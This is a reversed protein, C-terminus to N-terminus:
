KQHVRMSTTLVEPPLAMFEPDISGKLAVPWEVLGTVEELLEDDPKIQLGEKAAIQNIQAQILTKREERDVIVFAKKLKDKYDQVNKITLAEPAHFRHGYTINGFVVKDDGLNIEGPVIQGDFLCLISHLPRVWPRKNTAWLMSKAWPLQSIVEDIIPAILEITPKGKIDLKAFYFTGKDLDRQECQDVSSLGVSKLFGDRAQQPAGVRPGKREELRDAQKVAIGQLSLTLRRPTVFTDAQSCDLGIATLKDTFLRQFDEAAKRQMRAPIEESFLEILLDATKSM